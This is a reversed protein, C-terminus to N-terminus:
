YSALAMSELAATPGTSRVRSLLLARAGIALLTTTGLQVHYCTLRLWAYSAQNWLAYSAQSWLADYIVNFRPPVENMLWDPAIGLELDIIADCAGNLVQYM